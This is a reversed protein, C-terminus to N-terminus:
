QSGDGSVAELLDGLRKSASNGARTVEEHSLKNKSLGSAMNAICSVGLVNMGLHRAAIVEYVTSMGVADAGLTRLMRIEAPTEYCPGLVGAYVGEHLSPDITKARERWAKSYPETMDPFRPGLKSDNPGVLPNDGTLNIHDAILMLDGASYGSNIGGSVNTVILNEVGWRHMLRIPFIVQWPTYGEYRHVRGQMLLIPTKGILGHVFQGAHGDVTSVPFGEIERYPLTQKSSLRNAFSGLGSGLIIATDASPLRKM